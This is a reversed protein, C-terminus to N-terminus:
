PDAKNMDKNALAKVDGGFPHTDADINSGNNHGDKMNSLIDTVDSLDELNVNREYHEVLKRLKAVSQTQTLSPPLSNIYEVTCNLKRLESSMKVDDAGTAATSCMAEWAGIKMGFIYAAIDDGLRVINMITNVREKRYAAIKTVMAIKGSDVLRVNGKDDPRFVKGGFEFPTTKAVMNGSADRGQVMFNLEDDVSNNVMNDIKKLQEASHAISSFGSKGHSNGGLGLLEKPVAGRAIISGLNIGGTTQANSHFSKKDFNRGVM